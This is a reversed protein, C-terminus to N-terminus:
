FIEVGSKLFVVNNRDKNTKIQRIAYRAQDRLWFPSEWNIKASADYIMNLRKRSRYFVTNRSDNSSKMQSCLRKEQLQREARNESIFVRV